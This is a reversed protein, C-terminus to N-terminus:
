EIEVSGSDAHIKVLPGGAGIRGQVHHPSFGSHVTMEPVSIRGSEVDAEVDYGAGHVLKVDVGGSETKARIPAPTTQSLRIRGSDAQADIAGAVDLAEIGGSDTHALLSGKVNRIRIGGSDAAARVDALVDSIEVGGSDTKVDVPGHLEAVHIGGSDARARVQTDAPTEIELRMSINSLRDGSVYGVRIRNGIQEVPPHAEIDRIRAEVDGASFWGQNAKLIAHISVAGAHGQRVVIGGSDTKVDLEVPGSVTLSKSFSGEADAAWLGASSFLLLGAAVIKM